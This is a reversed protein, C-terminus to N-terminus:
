ALLSRYAAFTREAMRDWSFLAAQAFGRAVMGARDLRGAAVQELAAAIAETSTPPVYLAADGAVEPLSTVNSCVVPCGLQMAELVPLGFGEFLSPFVLAEAHRMLTWVREDPVWGLWLVLDGLGRSAIAAQLAAAAQAHAGGALVLRLRAERLRPAALSMADLLRLHNKHPWPRAPYLVFRGLGRAWPDAEADPPPPEVLGGLPTVVIRGEAVGLREVLVRATYNSISLLVDSRALYRERIWRRQVLEDEPLQAPHLVEFLDVVTTCLRVRPHAVVEELNPLARHNSTEHVLLPPGGWTVSAADRETWRQVTPGRAVGRVVSLARDIRRGVVEGLRRRRRQREGVEPAPAGFGVLVLDARPLHQRLCAGSLRPGLGEVIRGAGGAVAVGDERGHVVLRPRSM